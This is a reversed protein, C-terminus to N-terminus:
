RLRRCEYSGPIRQENWNSLLEHKVSTFMCTEEVGVEESTRWLRDGRSFTQRPESPSPASVRPREALRPPM